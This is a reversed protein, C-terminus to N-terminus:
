DVATNDRCYADELLRGEAAEHDLFTKSIDEFLVRVAALQNPQADLRRADAKLGAVAKLLEGHQVRLRDAEHKLHPAEALVEDFYGDAEEFQFHEELQRKLEQLQRQLAEHDIRAMMLSERVASWTGRLEDHQRSMKEFVAQAASRTM